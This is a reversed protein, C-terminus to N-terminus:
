FPLDEDLQDFDFDDVTFIGPPTSKSADPQEAKVNAGRSAPEAKKVQQPAANGIENGEFDYVKLPLCKLREYRPPDTEPVRKYYFLGDQIVRVYNAFVEFNFDETGDKRSFTKLAEDPVKVQMLVPQGFKAPHELFNDAAQGVLTVRFSVEHNEKPKVKSNSLSALTSDPMVTKVTLRIRTQGQYKSGERQVIGKELRTPEGILTATPNGEKKGQIVCPDYTIYTSNKKEDM